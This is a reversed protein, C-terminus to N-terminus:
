KTIGWMEWSIDSAIEQWLKIHHTSTDEFAEANVSSRIDMYLETYMSDPVALVGNNWLTKTYQDIKGLKPSAYAATNTGSVKIKYFYEDIKEYIININASINTIGSNNVFGFGISLNGNTKASRLLFIVRKWKKFETMSIGTDVVTNAQTGISITGGALKEMGTFKETAGGGSQVEGPVVNGDEGIVLAKGANEVGQQKDLKGTLDEKLAAADKKNQQIQERDAVIEAAAQQVKETEEAGATRVNQLQVSGASDIAAIQSVGASNVAATQATGTDTIEQVAKRAAGAFGETAQQVTERDQATQRADMETKKANEETQAAYQETAERDEAVTQADASVEASKQVVDEKMQAIEAGAQQVATEMKKAEAAATEAANKHELADQASNEARYAADQADTAHQLANTESQKADEAAKNVTELVEEFMNGEETGGPVEPKPRAKLPIMIEYETEGANDVRQYVFAYINGPVELASDPIRVDTVGDKTVGIRTVSDGSEETKSFHVEVTQPLDLGQIRLMQGYDWQWVSEATTWNSNDKNFIATTM